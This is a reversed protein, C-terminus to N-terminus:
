DGQKMLQWVGVMIAVSLVSMWLWSSMFSVAILAVGGLFPPIERQKRAYLLYGGGVSGWFLSAFLFSQNLATEPKLGEKKLAETLQKLQPNDALQEPEIFNSNAAAAPAPANTAFLPGVLTWLLCALGIRSFANKIVPVNFLLVARSPFCFRCGGFEVYWRV